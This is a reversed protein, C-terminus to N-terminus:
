PQIGEVARRSKELITGRLPVFDLAVAREQTSDELMYNFFGHAADSKM